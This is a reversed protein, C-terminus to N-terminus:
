LAIWTHVRNVATSARRRQVGIGEDVYYFAVQKVAAAARSWVVANFQQAAGMFNTNLVSDLAISMNATFAPHLKGAYDPGSGSSTLLVNADLPGLYLRGRDRARPRSKGTHTTPAGEEIARHDTPEPGSAGHELDTGYGARFGCVVALEGPLPADGGAAGLTFAMTAFPTGTPSGNLNATVDYYEIQSANAIRSLDSSLYWALPHTMAESVGNVFDVLTTHLDGVTIAPDSGTAEFTLGFSSNKMLTDATAFQVRAHVVQQTV